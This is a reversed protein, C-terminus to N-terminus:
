VLTNYKLEDASGTYIITGSADKTVTVSGDTITKLSDISVTTGNSLVIRAKNAVPPPVDREVKAVPAIDKKTNFFAFYSGVGIIILISAAVMWRKYMKRVPAPRLQKARELVDNFLAEKNLAESEGKYIDLGKEFEAALLEEQQASENIFAPVDAPDLDDALFQKLLQDYPKPM